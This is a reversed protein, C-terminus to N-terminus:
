DVKVWKPKDGNCLLWEYSAKMKAGVGSWSFDRIMWQRGREGMQRREEDSKLILEKLAATLPKVGIPIWKGAGERELGSWPTGQSAIVPTGCALAEAVTVGFNETHSPLVYIDAASLFAYKDAGNIEGVFSVRPIKRDAILSELEHRVGGDPGAIVVEWQDALVAKSCIREWALVLTDVAKVKHLRGFFVVRKLRKELGFGSVRFGSSVDPLDIGVPVIAVPQRYGANRIEEYEKDCTAHWMDTRRLAPYQLLHGFIMKKLRGHALAWRSLTGHPSTVVKVHSKKAVWYPYINPMMWLSNGHLIDVGQAVMEKLAAHMAPSRGLNRIPSWAPPYEALSCLGVDVGQMKLEAILRKMYYSPGSSEAEISPIIQIVNM